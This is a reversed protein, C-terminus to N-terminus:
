EPPRRHPVICRAHCRPFRAIRVGGRHGVLFAPRMECGGAEVLQEAAVRV